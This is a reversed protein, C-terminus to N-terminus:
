QKLEIINTFYLIVFIVVLGILGRAMKGITWHAPETNGCVECVQANEAVPNGCADCKGTNIM